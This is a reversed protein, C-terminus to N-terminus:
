RSSDIPYATAGHTFRSFDFRSVAGLDINTLSAVNADLLAPNVIFRYHDQMAIFHWLEDFM